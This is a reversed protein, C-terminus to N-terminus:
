EAEAAEAAEACESCCYYPKSLVTRHEVDLKDLKCHPCRGAPM